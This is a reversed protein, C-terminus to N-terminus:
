SSSAPVGEGLTMSAGITLVGPHSPATHPQVRLGQGDIAVPIVLERSGAIEQGHFGPRLSYGSAADPQFLFRPHSGGAFWSSSRSIAGIGLVRLAIEAFLLTILVSATSLALKKRM